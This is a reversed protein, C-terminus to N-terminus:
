SATRRRVHVREDRVTVTFARLPRPPPGELVNGELDFSARHCPCALAKAAPDWRVLCGLHSCVTSLAFLKGGSSVVICPERGFRFLLYGKSEVEVLTGAEMEDLSERRAEPPEAFFGALIGGTGLTGAAIAIAFTDLINRRTMQGADPVEVPTARLVGAPKELDAPPDPIVIAKGGPVEKLSAAVNRAALAGLLSEIKDPTLAPELLWIESRM